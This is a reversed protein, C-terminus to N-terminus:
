QLFLHSVFHMGLLDSTFSLIDAFCSEHLLYFIMKERPDEEQEFSLPKPNKYIYIMYNTYRALAPKIKIIVVNYIERTIYIVVHLSCM